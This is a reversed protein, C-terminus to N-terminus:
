CFLRPYRARRTLMTTQALLVNGEAAREEEENFACRGRQRRRRQVMRRRATAERRLRQRRAAAGLPWCYRPAAAAITGFVVAAAARAVAAVARLRTLLACGAPAGDACGTASLPLLLSKFTDGAAAASRSRSARAAACM